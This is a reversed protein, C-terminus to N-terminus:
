QPEGSNIHREVVDLMDMHMALIRRHAEARRTNPKLKSLFTTTMQIRRELDYKRAMAAFEFHRSM